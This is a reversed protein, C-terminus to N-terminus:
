ISFYNFNRMCSNNALHDLKAIGDEFKTGINKQLQCPPILSGMYQPYTQVKHFPTKFLTQFPTQFLQTFSDNSHRRSVWNLTYVLLKNCWNTLSITYSRVSM